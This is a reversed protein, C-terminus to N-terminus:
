QHPTVVDTRPVVFHESVWPELDSAFLTRERDHHRSRSGADRGPNRRHSRRLDRHQVARQARRGNPRTGPRRKRASPPRASREQVAEAEPTLTRDVSGAIVEDPFLLFEFQIKKKAASVPPTLAQLFGLFMALILSGHRISYGNRKDYMLHSLWIQIQTETLLMLLLAFWM